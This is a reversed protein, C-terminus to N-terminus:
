DEPSALNFSWTYDSASLQFRLAVCCGHSKRHDALRRIAARVRRESMAQPSRAALALATSYEEFLRKAENCM